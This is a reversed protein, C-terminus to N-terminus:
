RVRNNIKLKPISIFATNALSPALSREFNQFKSAGFQM